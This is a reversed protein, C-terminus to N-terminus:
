AKAAQATAAVPLRLVFVAGGEPKNQCTIQGKHDQVVGYVASLGLGTGKGVPKTTYFPDFVRQPERIGPGSDSFQVVVEEGQRRADIQLIGGGLEELADKANEVIQMFVQFLQNTNGWVRPLDHEMATEIQIKRGRQQLEIMQVSRQVLMALDVQAKEAQTQRAFSLLGAVLDRTRQAQTVIKRVLSNQETTLHHNSWLMESCTMIATLPHDIDQAAGAVLHGLSALKEKQMLHTQLRQENEYSRRSEELLRILAQDQLYQRLFMFVGLVLMAGLILYIRFMRTRFPSSDLFCSWLGLLPLSLSALLALRPTVTGWRKGPPRAPAIEFTTGRASLATAVLWCASATLPIDYPSGPYYKGATVAQNIFYSSVTYLVGACLVNSYVRRWAGTATRWANGLALMLVLNQAQYLVLYNRDYAVVNLAVYQDPYVVFGYLLMWWVLLIFFNLTSLHFKHEPKPLHPQWAVAGIMPVLHFFLIVDVFFPDPPERHLALEFYAWAGENFTWLLCGAAMLAWFTREPGRGSVANALMAVTAALMLTLALVDAFAALGPGRRALLSVGACALTIGAAGAFWRHRKLLGM